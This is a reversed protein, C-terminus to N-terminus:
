KNKARIILKFEYSANESNGQQIRMVYDGPDLVVKDRNSDMNKSYYLINQGVKNYSSEPGFHGYSLMKTIDDEATFKDNKQIAFFAIKDQGYYDILNIAEVFFNEKVKFGVYDRNNDGFINSITTDKDLIGIISPDYPNDSYDDPFIKQKPVATPAPLATSAPLPTSPPISTAAPLATSAPLPTSPPIPTDSILIVTENTSPGCATFLLITLVIFRRM